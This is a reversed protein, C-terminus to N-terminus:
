KTVGTMIFFSYWINNSSSISGLDTNIFDAAVLDNSSQFFVCQMVDTIYDNRFGGGFITVTDGGNTSGFTVNLSSITMVPLVEYTVTGICNRIENAVYVSM